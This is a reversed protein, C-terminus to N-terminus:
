ALTLLIVMVVALLMGELFLQVPNKSEMGRSM